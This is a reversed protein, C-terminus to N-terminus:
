QHCSEEKLANVHKGVAWLDYGGAATHVSVDFWNQRKLNYAVGLAHLGFLVGHVFVGLTQLQRESPNVISEM